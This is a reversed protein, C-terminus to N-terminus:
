ITVFKAGGKRQQKAGSLLTEGLTENLFVFNTVSITLFYLNHFNIKFL